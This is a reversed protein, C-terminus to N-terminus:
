WVSRADPRCHRRRRGLTHLAAVLAWNPGSRHGTLTPQKSIATARWRGAAPM